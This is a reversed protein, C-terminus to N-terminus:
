ALGTGGCRPCRKGDRVNLPGLSGPPYKRHPGKHGKPMTCFATGIGNAGTRMERGCEEVGASRDTV